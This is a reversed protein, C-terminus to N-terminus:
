RRAGTSSSFYGYGTRAISGVGSAIAGWSQSRAQAAANNSTRVANEGSVRARAATATEGLRIRADVRGANARLTELDAAGEEMTTDFLVRGTPSFPDLGRSARLANASSLSVQMQRQVEVQEQEAQQAAAKREEEYQKMELAAAQNAAEANAIAASRTAKAQQQASHVSVATGAIASGVALVALIATTEAM